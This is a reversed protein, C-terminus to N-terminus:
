NSIIKNFLFNLTVVKESAQTWSQFQKVKEKQGSKLKNM